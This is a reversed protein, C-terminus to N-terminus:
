KHEEICNYIKILEKYNGEPLISEDCVIRLQEYPTESCVRIKEALAEPSDHRFKWGNVGEQILSGTNGLDSGIVPTGLSFAEVVTMPFGEYCQTSLILAKAKQIMPQLDEKKQFGLFEINDANEDKAMKKYHELDPGNGAILLKEQPLMKFAGILIDIGKLPEVRGAFLYYDGRSVVPKQMTQFTMNPKVFMKEPDFVEKKERANVELIKKRNFETLCIYHIKHYIGLMRHLKTTVVCAITQLRSGRYCKHKISCGLGHQMCEECVKGERFFTAGPCILRFNHVTQVVPVKCHLAAYYVSPSILNLTNHVHVIDIGEERIIKKIDKYTKLQFITTFPLLLKRVVGFDDMEKNARSYFFVEHGNKELLAKENEVVTDEGGSVKYYNHVLLIKQKKTAKIMKNGESVHM